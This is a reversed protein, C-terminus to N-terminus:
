QQRWKAREAGFVVSDDTLVGGTGLISSSSSAQRCYRPVVRLLRFVQELVEVQLLMLLFRLVCSPTQLGYCVFLQDGVAVSSVHLRTSNLLLM